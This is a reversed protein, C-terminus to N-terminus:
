IDKYYQSQAKKNQKTQQTQKINLVVMRVSRFPSLEM